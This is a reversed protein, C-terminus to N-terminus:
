NLDNIFEIEEPYYVKENGWDENWEDNREECIFQPIYGCEDFLERANITIFGFSKLQNLARNGFERVNDADSFYWKLFKSATVQNKFKTTKM